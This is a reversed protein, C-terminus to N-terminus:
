RSNEEVPDATQECDPVSQLREPLQLYDDLIRDVTTTPIRLSPDSAAIRRRVDALMALERELRDRDDTESTTSTAPLAAAM